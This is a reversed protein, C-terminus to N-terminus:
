EAVVTECQVCQVEESDYLSLVGLAFISQLHWECDRIRSVLYCLSTDVISLLHAVQLINLLAVAVCTILSKGAAPTM